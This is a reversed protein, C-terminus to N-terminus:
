CLFDFVKVLFATDLMRILSPSRRHSGMVFTRIRDARLRKDNELIKVEIRSSTGTLQRIPVFDLCRGCFAELRCYFLSARIMDLDIPKKDVGGEIFVFARLSNHVLNEAETNWIRSVMNMSTLIVDGHNLDMNCYDRLYLVSTSSIFLSRFVREVSGADSPSLESRIVIAGGYNVTLNRMAIMGNLTTVRYPIDSCVPVTERVSDNVAPDKVLVDRDFRVVPPLNGTSWCFPTLPADQLVPVPPRDIVIFMGASHKKGQKSLSM